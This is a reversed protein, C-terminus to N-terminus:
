EVPAAEISEGDHLRAHSWIEVATVIVFLPFDGLHANAAAAHIGVTKEQVPGIDVILGVVGRAAGRAVQEPDLHQPLKAHQGGGVARLIPAVRASDDGGDAFRAAVFQVAVDILEKAIVMEIRSVKSGRKGENLRLWNPAVM